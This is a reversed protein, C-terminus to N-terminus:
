YVEANKAHMIRYLGFNLDASRAPVAGEAPSKLKEPIESEDCDGEIAEPQVLRHSDRNPVKRVPIGDGGVLLTRKPKFAESFAALGSHAVPARGSKVEIAVIRRGARAVFDVERNGRAGISSRVRRLGRRQGPARGRCLRTLRRLVRPKARAESPTLGSGRPEATGHQLGASTSGCRARGLLLIQPLGTLMGPGPWCVWITRWHPPTAPMTSSAQNGQTRFCEAEFIPLWSSCAGCYHPSIWAPSCSSTAAVTTEVLADLLYRRWRPPDDMLPAAGPYGGFYLYQGAFGFRRACRPSPGAPHLFEFRRPWAEALGRRVLPTSGLLVVRLPLRARTARGLPTQGGGVLRPSRRCRTWALM